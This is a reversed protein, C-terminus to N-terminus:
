AVSGSVANPRGLLAGFGPLADSLGLRRLAYWYTAANVSVIPRALRAELDELMDVVALAGGVHLLTDVERCAITAFAERIREPTVDIIHEPLDVDLWVSHVVEFGRSRYYAAAFAAHEESMPSLLGIRRADLARLAAECAEAATVVPVGIARKALEARYELHESESVGRMEVSNGVVIIDPWCKLTDPIVRLAAALPTDGKGELFFRYVQNSIGAPRLAEYEPQMNSNQVPIVLAIVGRPGFRDSM